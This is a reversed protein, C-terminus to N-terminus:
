GGAELTQELGEELGRRATFGLEAAALGTDLATREVEGERHPAPQPEFDDRGSLRGIAEALSLV